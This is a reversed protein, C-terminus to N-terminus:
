RDYKRLDHGSLEDYFRSYELGSISWLYYLSNRNGEFVEEPHM